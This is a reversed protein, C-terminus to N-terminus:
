GAPGYYTVQGEEQTGRYQWRFTYEMRNGASDWVAATVTWPGGTVQVQFVAQGGTVAERVYEATEGTDARVATVSFGEVAQNDQARCIVQFGGDTVERISAMTLRPPTMDVFVTGQSATEGRNGARDVACLRVEYTGEKWIDVDMAASGDQRVNYYRPVWDETGELRTEVRFANVGVDDQGSALLVFGQNTVQTVAAATLQPPTGDVGAAEPEPFLRELTGSGCVGDADLGNMAQFERVAQETRTCFFGTVYEQPLLGLQCLRLQIVAVGAGLYLGRGDAMSWGRSVPNYYLGYAIEFGAELALDYNGLALASVGTTIHWTEGASWESPQLPKYLGYDEMHFTKGNYTHSTSFDAGLWDSIVDMATGSNHASCGPKAFYNGIWTNDWLRLAARYYYRLDLTQLDYGELDLTYASPWDAAQEATWWFGTVSRGNWNLGNRFPGTNANADHLGIIEQYCAPRFGNTILLSGEGHGTDRAYTALRIILDQSTGSLMADLATQYDEQYDLGFNMCWNSVATDFNFYPLAEQYSLYSIEAGRAPLPGALLLCVAALAAAARRLCKKLM